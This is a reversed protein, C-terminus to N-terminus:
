LLTPSHYATKINKQSTANHASSATEILLQIGVIQELIQNIKKKSQKKRHELIQKQLM